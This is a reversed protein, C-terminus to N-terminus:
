QPQVVSAEWGQGDQGSPGEVSREPPFPIGDPNSQSTGGTEFRVRKGKRIPNGEARTSTWKSRNTDRARKTRASKADKKGKSDRDAIASSSFFVTHSRLRTWAHSRSAWPDTASAIQPISVHLRRGEPAGRRKAAVFAESPECSRSCLRCTVGSGKGALRRAVGGGLLLLLRCAFAFFLLAFGLELREHLQFFHGRGCAFFVLVHEELHAHSKSM